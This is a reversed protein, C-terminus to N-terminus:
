IQKRCGGGCSRSITPTGRDTTETLYYTYGTQNPWEYAPMSERFDASMQQLLEISGLQQALTQLAELNARKNGRQQRPSKIAQPMLDLGGTSLFEVMRRARDDVGLGVLLMRPQEVLADRGNPFREDYWASFDDIKQVGGVGSREEIYRSLEEQNLEYLYSAYDIVQTVAERTLTGRKLECVLLRGDDDIGLLDLPGGETPTQRGILQLQPLLLDPTITRLDDLERETNTEALTEVCQAIPKGDIGREL